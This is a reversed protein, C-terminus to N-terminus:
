SILGSVATGGILPGGGISFGGNITGVLYEVETKDQIYDTLASYFSIMDPTVLPTGMATAVQAALIPGQLGVVKGNKAFAAVLVGPAGPFPPPNPLLATCNGEVKNFNVFASATIYTSIATAQKQLNALMPGQYQPDVGEVLVSSMAGMIPAPLFGIIKGNMAIGSVFSGANPAPANLAIGNGLVLPHMTKAAKLGTVVGKALAKARKTSPVSGGDKDKMNLTEVLKEALEEQDLAM